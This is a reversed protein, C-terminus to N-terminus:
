YVLLLHDPSAWMLERVARSLIICGESASHSPGAIETKPGQTLPASQGTGSGTLLHGTSDVDGLNLSVGRIYVKPAMNQSVDFKSM